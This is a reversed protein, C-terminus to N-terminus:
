RRWGCICSNKLRGTWQDAIQVGCQPCTAVSLFVIYAIVAIIGIVLMVFWM